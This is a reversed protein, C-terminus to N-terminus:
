WCVPNGWPSYGVGDGHHWIVVDSESAMGARPNAVIEVALSLHLRGADVHGQLVAAMRFREKARAALGAASQALDGTPANQRAAEEVSSLNRAVADAIFKTAAADIATM